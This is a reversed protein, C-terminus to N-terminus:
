GGTPLDLRYVGSPQDAFARCENSFARRAIQIPERCEFRGIRAEIARGCREWLAADAPPCVSARQDSMYEATDRRDGEVVASTLLRVLLGVMFQLEEETECLADIRNLVATMEEVARDFLRNLEDEGACEQLFARFAREDYEPQKEMRHQFGNQGEANFGDFFGHHSGVAAALIEATIDAFGLELPKSAHKKLFFRVAAFTHIVSGRRAIGQAAQRLYELFEDTFKGMDHVLATLFAAFYLGVGALAEGAYAAAARSHAECTQDPRGERVHASHM